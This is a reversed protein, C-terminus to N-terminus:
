LGPIVKYLTERGASRRNVSENVSENVSTVTDFHLEGDEGERGGREGLVGEDVEGVAVLERGAAVDDHLDSTRYTEVRMLCTLLSVIYFERVPEVSIPTAMPTCDHGDDAQRTSVM